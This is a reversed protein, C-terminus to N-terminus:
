KESRENILKAIKQILDASEALADSLSYLYTSINNLNTDVLMTEQSGIERLKPEGTIEGDFDEPNGIVRYYNKGDGYDLSIAGCKCTKYEGLKTVEVTGGCKKCRAKM